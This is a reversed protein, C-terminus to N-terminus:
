SKQDPQQLAMFSALDNAVFPKFDPRPTPPTVTIETGVKSQATALDIKPGDTTVSGTVKLGVAAKKKKDLEELEAATMFGTKIELSM